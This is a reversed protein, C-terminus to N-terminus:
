GAASTNVSPLLRALPTNNLAPLNNIARRPKLLPDRTKSKRVQPGLIVKFLANILEISPVM